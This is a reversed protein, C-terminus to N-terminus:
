VLREKVLKAILAGDARGGSKQKVQGIVKGMETKDISGEGAIDNIMQRVEEESLMEPLYADIVAKESLEQKAREEDGGQQYMDASEQRKKAEKQLVAITEEDSLGEERKNKSVEEYLIASKLGRLVSVLGKDGSLLAQKLDNNLQQKVSM